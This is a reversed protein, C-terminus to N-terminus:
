FFCKLCFVSGGGKEFESVDVCIPALKEAALIEALAPPVHGVVFHGNAVAGNCVFQFADDRTIEHLRPLTRRLLDLSQADFAGPYVLAAEANLPMFCTDLHYFTPDVLQLPAVRVDEAHMADAFRRVGEASSRFGFGAWVLGRDPQALLDGHGELFADGGLALDVVAYGRREFWAVVHPVERQRSAYRMRSPVVFRAHRAGSGAFVQNATFVMDECDPAPEVLQPAVGLQAFADRLAAWQRAAAARDIGAEPNMFPNKVDRVTYFDPACMLVGTVRVSM